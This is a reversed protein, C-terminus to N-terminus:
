MDKSNSRYSVIRNRFKQKKTSDKNAVYQNLRFIVKFVDRANVKKALKKLKDQGAQYNNGYEIYVLFDEMRAAFINSLQTASQTGQVMLVELDDNM